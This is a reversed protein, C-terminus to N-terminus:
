ATSDGLTENVLQYTSSGGILTATEGDCIEAPSVIATIIDPNPNVTLSVFNIITCPGVPDFATVEYTYSGAATPTINLGNGAAGNVIGSGTEPDANWTYSYNQNSGTQVATLVTSEGLCIENESLTADVPDPQIVTITVPTRLSECDDDSESVWLTTTEGILGTYTSGGEQLLNGDTETDYWRYTGNSGGTSVSATPVAFGCHSSNNAIPPNPLDLVTVEVTGENVCGNV